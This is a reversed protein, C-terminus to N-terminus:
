ETFPNWPIFNLTMMLDNSSGNENKHGPNVRAIAQPHSYLYSNLVEEGFLIIIQTSFLLSSCAKIRKHCSILKDTVVNNAFSLHAEAASSFVGPYKFKAYSILIQLELAAALTRKESLAFETFIAIKVDAQTAFNILHLIDRNRTTLM